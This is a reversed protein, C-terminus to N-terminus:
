NYGVTTFTGDDYFDFKSGYIAGSNPAFGEYDPTMPINILGTGSRYTWLTFYSNQPNSFGRPAKGSMMLVKGDNSWKMHSIVSYGSATAGQLLTITTGSISYLMYNGNTLGVALITGDQTIAVTSATSIPLTTPNTMKTFTTGSVSYVTIYPSTAHGCALVSSTQNWSLSYCAGTPATTPNTLATYPSTTADYIAFYPTLQVGLALVTGAPNYAVAYPTSTPLTTPNSIATFTTGSVSYAKFYPSSGQGFALKTSKYWSLDNCSSTQVTGSAALRTLTGGSNSFIANPTSSITGVALLSGSSSWKAVYAGNTFLTQDIPGVGPPYGTTTFTPGSTINYRVVYPWSYRIITQYTDSNSYIASVVGPGSPNALTGTYTPYIRTYTTGSISYVYAATNYCFTIQTGASNYSMKNCTSPVPTTIAVNTLTSGSQTYLYLVSASHVLIHSGGNNIGCCTTAAAPLTAPNSMKTYTTGSISYVTMFPSVAHACVLVTSATGSNYNYAVENVQGTPMTAPSNLTFTDTSRTITYVYLFLGGTTGIALQTGDSNFAVTTAASSPATSFVSNSLRTWTSGSRKWIIVYPSSQAIAVCYTGNYDLALDGIANSTSFETTLPKEVTNKTWTNVPSQSFISIYPYESGALALYTANSDTSVSLGRYNAPHGSSSSSSNDYASYGRLTESSNQTLSYLTPYQTNNTSTTPQYLLLAYSSCTALYPPLTARLTHKGGGFNSGFSPM